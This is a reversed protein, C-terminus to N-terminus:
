PAELPLRDDLGAAVWAVFREPEHHFMREAHGGEEFETWSSPGGWARRVKRSLRPFVLWDRRGVLFHAPLRAQKALTVASPKARFFWGYRFFFDNGGKVKTPWADFPLLLPQLFAGGSWVIEEVKTPCSVLLLREPREGDEAVARVATYAGLSFGMLSVHAYGKRAWALVPALDRHEDAGFQFSGQSLGNGRYDLVLVAALPSLYQALATFSRTGSHQGFGPSLQLLRGGERPGAWLRAHVRLGDSASFTLSVPQAEASRAQSALGLCLAALLATAVYLRCAAAISGQRLPLLAQGLTAKDAVRGRYRVPGGLQVGLAGAFAGEPWGSNPSPQRPGDRLATAWARAACALRGGPGPRILLAALGSLLAALRAPVWNALDDLRASAWGLDLYREDRHGVMSDLTNLM